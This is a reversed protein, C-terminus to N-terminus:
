GVVAAATANGYAEPMHAFDGKRGPPCPRQPAFTTTCLAGCRGYKTDGVAEALALAEAERGPGYWRSANGSGRVRLFEVESDHWSAGDDGHAPAPTAATMRDQVAATTPAQKQASVAFQRTHAMEEAGYQLGCRSAIPCAHPSFSPRHMPPALPPPKPRRVEAETSM